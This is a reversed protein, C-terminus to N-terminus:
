SLIAEGTAEGDLTCLAVSISHMPQGPFKENMKKWLFAAMNESTPSMGLSRKSRSTPCLPSDNLYTGVLPATIEVLETQAAIMDVLRDGPLPFSAQFKVTIKWLHFHPIEFGALSHSAKFSHFVKLAIRQPQIITSEM